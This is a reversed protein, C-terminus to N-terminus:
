PRLFRYVRRVGFGGRQKQGGGTEPGAAPQYPLEGLVRGTVGAGAWVLIAQEELSLPVPPETSEYSFDGGQLHNGLAFRRARRRTMIELLGAAEVDELGPAASAARPPRDMTAM